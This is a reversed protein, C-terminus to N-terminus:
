IAHRNVVTGIYTNPFFARIHVTRFFKMSFNQNSPYKPRPRKKKREPHPTQNPIERTVVIIQPGEPM